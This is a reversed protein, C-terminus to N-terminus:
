TEATVRETLTIEPVQGDVPVTKNHTDLGLLKKLKKLNRRAVEEIAKDYLLPNIVSNLPLVTMAFAAYWSSADIYKLNHLASIAIFPVWCIFDTAIIVMIKNQIAREGKLRKPNDQQGSSQSSMRTKCIIVIYCCTIIIFCIFNVALMTWVVLNGASDEGTEFTQRSRRADDTRVFYKFLCVGDNGYFHVPNKTLIGHDQSFMNEVKEGIERWSMMTSIQTFNETSNQKYYEELVKIHRAKNPFGVFVRYTPDYYMGQVFNDELSPILPTVAVAFAAAIVMGGMSIVKVMDKRSVPKPLRMPNWTIGYMRILSLVTMAFLSVQSGLTSIVGLILCTTGTLWEAQHKCFDDGLIISDYVSLIVLYLGILFDGSGILSMLATSTMMQETECDNLSMFGKVMSFSNFIVALIGMFWCVIKLVQTGLIQKGCGSNCEDSIDFCDDIGDCKQYLSIFQHKTSNRTDECIMHNACNLEDSMDGCDDILDCVKKYELCRGNQCQYFEQHYYGSVSKVFFTLFSNDVITFTRDPFQGPCSDHKLNTNMYDFPCKVEMESCLDMCSAFVYLEGFIHKCSYLRSTPVVLETRRNVGFINNSGWPTSFERVECSTNNTGCLSRMTGNYPVQKIIIPFDRAIRCVSNESGDSCSEVGDCLQGLSVYVDKHPCKFMDQCKTGPAVIQKSVGACFRWKDPDEDDAEMCDAIGDMLWSIPLPINGNKRNFRRHCTFGLVDTMIKCTDLTEDSDYLCDARKDCLHHKHITCDALSVCQKQLQDDCLKIPTDPEQNFGLCVVSKSVATMYGNVRCFGGIRTTDSCNTQDSYDVCYPYAKVSLDVISCRTYNLIPVRVDRDYVMKVLYQTCTNQTSDTVTCDREDSGDTCGNIGDCVGYVQVYHPLNRKKCSVGYKLGNCEMEDNCYTSDCSGDCLIIDPDGTTTCDKKEAGCGDGACKMVDYKAYYSNKCFYGGCLLGVGTVKAGFGCAQYVYPDNICTRSVSPAPTVYNNELKYLVDSYPCKFSVKKSEEDFCMHKLYGTPLRVIGCEEGLERLERVAKYDICNSCACRWGSAPTSTSCYQVRCCPIDSDPNCEAPTGDLLPFDSGCMGDGRWRQTGGSEEWERYIIRYDSCDDCSCHSTTNGCRGDYKRSCCPAKGNPDCEAAASTGDPYSYKRGCLGDKRWRKRVQVTNTPSTSTKPVDKSPFKEENDGASFVLGWMLLTRLFYTNRKLRVM